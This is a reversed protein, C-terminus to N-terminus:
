EFEAIRDKLPLADVSALRKSLDFFADEDSSGSAAPEDAPVPALPTVVAPMAAPTDHLLAVPEEKEVPAFVPAADFSVEADEFDQAVKMAVNAAMAVPLLAFDVDEQQLRDASDMMKPMIQAPAPSTERSFGWIDIMNTIRDEMFVMADIVKRIRQSTLDQFSCAVYINIARQDIADCTEVALGGERLTWAIEQIQEAAELISHTHTATSQVIADLEGRAIEIPGEQAGEATIAAIQQRTEALRRAMELVDGQFREVDSGTAPTRVANELREIATLITLTESGRNRHLYDALFAKGRASSMLATELASFAPDVAAPM